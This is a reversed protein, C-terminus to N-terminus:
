GWGGGGGSSSSSTSTGASSAGGTIAEGSPAVLWWKAGFGDNGQGTTQGKSKDLLYYYLPHGKYTVQESGDSRTVTGLLAANVGDEAKPKGKTEVPPWYRACTGSCASKGGSDAVWLYVSRGEDATLYTGVSGKSTGVAEPGSAESSGSSGSSQTSASTSSTAAPAAAAPSSTSSSASGCGAVVMASIALAAILAARLKARSVIAMM